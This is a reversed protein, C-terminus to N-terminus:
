IVRLLLAVLLWFGASLLVALVLGRAPRLADGQAELLLIFPKRTLSRFYGM